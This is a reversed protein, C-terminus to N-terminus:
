WSRVRGSDLHVFESTPYYGVGGRGLALATRQVQRLPLGPFRVDLARGELHLSRAAVGSGHRILWANYVASRFGSVIHIERHGGLGQDVASLFEIVRLDIATVEGTAHCRLLHNLRHLAAPDYRGAEDRYVVTAAERTHTHYLALRGPVAGTVAAQATPGRAVLTSAAAFSASLFSRRTWEATM